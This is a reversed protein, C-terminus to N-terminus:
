ESVEDGNYENLELRLQETTMHEYPTVLLGYRLVNALYEEVTGGQDISNLKYNVLTTIMEERSM